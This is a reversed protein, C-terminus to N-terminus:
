IVGTLAINVCSANNTAGRDNPHLAPRMKYVVTSLALREDKRKLSHVVVLQAVRTM